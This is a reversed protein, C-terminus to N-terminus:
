SIGLMKIMFIGDMLFVVRGDFEIFMWGLIKVICRQILKYLSSDM